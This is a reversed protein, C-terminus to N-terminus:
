LSGGVVYISKLLEEGPFIGWPIDAQQTLDYWTNTSKSCM